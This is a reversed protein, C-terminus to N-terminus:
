PILSRIVFLIGGGILLFSFISLIGDPAIYTKLTIGVLILILGVLLSLHTGVKSIDKLDYAPNSNNVPSDEILVTIVQHTLDSDNTIRSIHKYIYNKDFGNSYLSKALKKLDEVSGNGQNKM